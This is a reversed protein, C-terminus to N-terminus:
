YAGTLMGLLGGALLAVALLEARYGRLRAPNPTHALRRLTHM